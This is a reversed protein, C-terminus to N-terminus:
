AGFPDSQDPSMAPVTPRGAEATPWPLPPQDAATKYVADRVYVWNGKHGPVQGKVYVLNRDKDVQTHLCCAHRCLRWTAVFSPTMSAVVAPPTTTALCAALLRM